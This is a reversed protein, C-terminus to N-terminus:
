LFRGHVGLCVDVPEIILANVTDDAEDELERILDFVELCLDDVSGLRNQRKQALLQLAGLARERALTIFQQAGVLKVVLEATSCEFEFARHFAASRVNLAVGM